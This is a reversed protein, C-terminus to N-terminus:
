FTPFISLDSFPNNFDNIEVYSLNDEYNFFLFLCYKFIFHM